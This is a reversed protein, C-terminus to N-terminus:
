ASYHKELKQKLLDLTLPKILYEDIGARAADAVADPQSKSTTMILLLNQNARNARLRQLLKLGNLKPMMWDVFVIEFAQKIQNSVDIKNEAMVGDEAEHIENFGISILMSRLILRDSENDDVILVRTKKNWSSM